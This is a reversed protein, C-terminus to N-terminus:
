AGDAEEDMRQCEDRVVPHWMRNVADGPKHNERAWARFTKEESEDLVRFLPLGFVTEMTDGRM